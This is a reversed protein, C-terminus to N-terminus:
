KEDKSSCANGKISWSILGYISPIIWATRRVDVNVMMDQNNYGQELARDMAYSLNNEGLKYSIVIHEVSRGRVKQGSNQDAIKFHSKDILKNTLITFHGHNAVCSSLFVLCFISAILKKM